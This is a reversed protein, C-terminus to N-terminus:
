RAPTNTSKPAISYIANQTTQINKFKFNLEGVAYRGVFANPKHQHSITDQFNVTTSHTAPTKVSYRMHKVFQLPCIM